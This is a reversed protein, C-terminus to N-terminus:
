VKVQILEPRVAKYWQYCFIVILILDIMDGGYYMLMGGSQAQDRPIGGPTLMYTNLCFAM